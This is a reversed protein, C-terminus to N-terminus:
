AVATTSVGKDRIDRIPSLNFTVIWAVLRYRGEEVDGMCPGRYFPPGPFESSLFMFKNHTPRDKKPLFLDSLVAFLKDKGCTLKKSGAEFSDIFLPLPSV